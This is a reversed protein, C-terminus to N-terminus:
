LVVPFLKNNMSMHAYYVNESNKTIPIHVSYKNKIM